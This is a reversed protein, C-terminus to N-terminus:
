APSASMVRTRGVERGVALMPLLVDAVRQGCDQRLARHIDLFVADQRARVVKDGIQNLLAQALNPPTADDGLLEPVIFRGALVNPLASWGPRGTRAPRPQADQGKGSIVMTRKLLAAELAATGPALLVGDAATMAMQAHGFLITVSLEMAQNRYLADEFMARTARSGLPVLFHVNRVQKQILQATQVFVEAHHQLQHERSGPLLAIVLQQTSLRFQERAAERNPSEPIQDALPHGVFSAAVGAEALVSAEFPLLCLVRDCARKLAQASVRAPQLPPAVCHVTPVGRARLAQELPLNFDPVDLGVFLDPPDQRLAERLERRVVAARAVRMGHALAEFPQLAQLGASQMRPGGIGQLRAHPLAARLAALVQAGLLDGGADGAVMAIRPALSM